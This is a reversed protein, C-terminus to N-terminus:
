RDVSAGGVDFIRFRAARPRWKEVLELHEPDDLYRQLAEEDALGVCLGVDYAGDVADRGTDTHTGVWITEVADIRALMRRCDALCEPADAPDQLSVLVVHNLPAMHASKARYSDSFHPQGQHCGTLFVTALSLVLLKTAHPM